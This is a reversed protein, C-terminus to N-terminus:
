RRRLIVSGASYGAGFGSMVGIEGPALDGAYQHFVIVPSASSTNGYEAFVSPMEAATAPRGLVRKAILTNMNINAQHLWLRRVDAATLAHAGLHDVIMEAVMPGVDKFVKRGNQVFLRDADTRPQTETRNLFGFNNRINNSFQTQLHTGVIDFGQSPAVDDADEILAATCVDGFIFHSDRDRFNLHATCIEPNVMLVRRASGSRIMDAATQIGFAASACAVNLDFGFAGGGLASQVEVALAPYPRPLNSCAVLVADIDAATRGAAALCPEIAAMAMECQLSPEDNGRTRIRPHMTDPDLIGAKDVVYRSEIGSAKTIFEASSHSLPAREGAAIEAAHTENYRDVYTNFSAVLEDNSISEPPTYLGTASLVAQKM